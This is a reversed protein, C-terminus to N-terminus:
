AAELGTVWERPAIRTFQQRINPLDIVGVQMAANRDRPATTPAVPLPIPRRKPAPPEPLAGPLIELANILTQGSQSVLDIKLLGDKVTTTVQKVLPIGRRSTEGFPDVNERQAGNASFTMVRLGPETIGEDAECFHGRVTYTGDM